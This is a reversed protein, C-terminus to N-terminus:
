FNDRFVCGTEADFTYEYSLNRWTEEWDVVVYYAVNEGIQEVFEEAFEAGSRYKGQFSELFHAVNSIGYLEVFAMIASSDYTEMLDAFDEYFGISKLGYESIFEDISDYGEDIECQEQYTEWALSLEKATYEAAWKSVFHAMMAVKDSMGFRPDDKRENLVHEYFKTYNAKGNTRVYGAAILAASKDAASLSKIQTHLITASMQNLFPIIQPCNLM